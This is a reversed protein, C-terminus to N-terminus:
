YPSPLTVIQCGVFSCVKIFKDFLSVADVKLLHKLKQVLALDYAGLEVSFKTANELKVFIMPKVPPVKETIGVIRM